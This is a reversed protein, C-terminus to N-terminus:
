RRAARIRATIRDFYKKGASGPMSARGYQPAGGKPAVCAAATHYADRASAMKAEDDLANAIYALSQEMRCSAFGSRLAAADPCCHGRMAAFAATEYWGLKSWERMGETVGRAGHRVIETKLGLMARYDRAEECLHGLDGGGRGLGDEPLLSAWCRRSGSAAVAAETTSAPAAGKTSATTSA